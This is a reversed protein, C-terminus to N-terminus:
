GHRIRENETAVTKVNHIGVHYSENLRTFDGLPFSLLIHPQCFLLGVARSLDQYPVQKPVVSRRTRQKKLVTKAADSSGDEEIRSDCIGVIM